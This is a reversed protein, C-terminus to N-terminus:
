YVPTTSLSLSLHLPKVYSGALACTFVPEVKTRTVKDKERTKLVFAIDGVEGERERNSNQIQKGFSTWEM